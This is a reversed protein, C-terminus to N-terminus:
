FRAFSRLPARPGLRPPRPHTALLLGCVRARQGRFPELLELMRGDAPSLWGPISERSGARPEGTLAFVVMHPLNYDGLTVADPDGYAVRVVEAATWPGVGPITVLAATASAADPASELRRAVAAVRRLTDARRQEVGFPHFRWYPSAAVAEAAAPLLLDPRPGPAPEGFHRAMRAFSATAEKGSVKQGLITPVLLPFLRGTRPMRLGSHQRWARRVAPHAGALPEFPAVDDRLGAVADCHEVLWAAGPGHGEALLEGGTRCLHLTGPGDPTRIAWWLEDADLRVSPDRPLPCLAALTGAFDFREPVRLRRAPNM